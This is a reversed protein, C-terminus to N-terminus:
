SRSRTCWDSVCESTAGFVLCSMRNSCSRAISDITLQTRDNHRPKKSLKPRNFTYEISTMVSKPVHFALEASSILLLVLVLVLV